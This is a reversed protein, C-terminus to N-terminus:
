YTFLPISYRRLFNILGRLKEIPNTENQIEELRNKEPISIKPLGIVNSLRKDVFELFSEERFTNVAILIETDLNFINGETFPEFKSSIQIMQDGGFELFLSQCHEPNLHSMGVDHFIEGITTEGLGEKWKCYLACRLLFLKQGRESAGDLM